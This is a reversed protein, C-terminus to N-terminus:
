EEGRWVRAGSLAEGAGAKGASASHALTSAGAVVGTDTESATRANSGRIGFQGLAQWRAMDARSKSLEWVIGALDKHLDAFRADHARQLDIIQQEVKHVSSQVMETSREVDAHMSASVADLGHGADNDEGESTQPNAGTLMRLTAIMGHWLPWMTLVVMVFEELNLHSFLEVIPALVEVMEFQDTAPHERQTVAETILNASALCLVYSSAMM